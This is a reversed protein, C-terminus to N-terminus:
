CSYRISSVTVTLGANLSEGYEGATRTVHTARTMGGGVPLVEGDRAEPGTEMTVLAADAPGCWATGRMGYSRGLDSGAGPIRARAEWAGTAALLSGSHLWLHPSVCSYHQQLQGYKQRRYCCARM